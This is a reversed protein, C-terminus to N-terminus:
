GVFSVSSLLFLFALIFGKKEWIFRLTKRVAIPEPNAAFPSLSVANM